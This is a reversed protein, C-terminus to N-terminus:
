EETYAPKMLIIPCLVRIDETIIIVIINRKRENRVCATYLKVSTYLWGVWLQSYNM